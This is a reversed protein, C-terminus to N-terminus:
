VQWCWLRGCRWALVGGNSSGRTECGLQASKGGSRREECRRPADREEMRGREEAQTGGAGMEREQLRASRQDTQAQVGGKEPWREMETWDATGPRLEEAKSNRSKRPSQLSRRSMM